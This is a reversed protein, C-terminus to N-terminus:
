ASVQFPGLPTRKTSTESYNYINFAKGVASCTRAVLINQYKSLSSFGNVLILDDKEETINLLTQQTVDNLGVGIALIRVGKEKLSESISRLPFRELVFSPASQTLLVAIKPANRGEQLATFVYDSTIQLASDIRPPSRISNDGPTLNDMDYLFHDLDFTRRFNLKVTAQNSYLVIAANFHISKDALKRMTEKVFDKELRYRPPSVNSIDLM